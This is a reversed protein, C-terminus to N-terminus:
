ASGTVLSSSWSEPDARRDSKQKDRKLVREILIGRNGDEMRSRIANAYRQCLFRLRSDVILGRGWHASCRKRDSRSGARARCCFGFVLKNFWTVIKEWLM